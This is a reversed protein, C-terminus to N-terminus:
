QSVRFAVDFYIFRASQCTPGFCWLFASPLLGNVVGIVSAHFTGFRSKSCYVNVALSFREIATNLQWNAFLWACHVFGISVHGGRGLLCQHVSIFVLLVRLRCDLKFIFCVVFISCAAAFQRCFICNFGVIIVNVLFSSISRGAKHALKKLHCVIQLILCGCVM